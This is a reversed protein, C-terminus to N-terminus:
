RNLLKSVETRAAANPDQKLALGYEKQARAQDGTAAFAAALHYHATPRDLANGSRELYPLAAEPKGQRFYIWGLTDATFPNAPDLALAKEAWFRADDLKNQRSALTDALNNMIQANAPELELARLYHRTLVEPSAGKRAEVEALLLRTSASDRTKALDLLRQRASDLSGAAMDLRALGIIAAPVNRVAEFALRAGTADGQAALLRGLTTQLEPATPNGRAAQKLLAVFRPGEGQKTMVDGLLSLVATHSPTLTFAAELSRRAGPLDNMKTRLLADGYLFGSNRAKALSADINKRAVAFDGSEVLALNRIYAYEVSGQEMPSAQALIELARKANGAALFLQALDLRAAFLRPDLKLAETLLDGRRAVDGRAAFIRSQQYTLPASFAKLEQLTKIDRTAADLEGNDISLSARQLLATKDRPQRVLTASLVAAAEPRRGATLLLSSFQNPLDPDGPHEKLVRKFEAIGDDVKNEAFLM